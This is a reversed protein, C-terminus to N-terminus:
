GMYLTGGRGRNELLREGSHELRKRADGDKEVGLQLGGEVRAEAARQEPWGEVIHDLRACEVLLEPARVAGDVPLLRESGNDGYTM